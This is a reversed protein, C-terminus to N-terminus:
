SVFYTLIYMASRGLNANGIPTGFGYMMGNNCTLNPINLYFNYVLNHIFASATGDPNIWVEVDVLETHGNNIDFNQHPYSTNMRDSFQMPAEAGPYFSGMRRIGHVAMSAGMTSTSVKNAQSSAIYMWVGRNALKNAVMDDVMQMCTQADASTAAFFSCLAVLALATRVQAAIRMNRAKPFPSTM